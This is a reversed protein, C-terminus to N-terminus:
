VGDIKLVASGGVMRLFCDGTEELAGTGLSDAIVGSAEHGWRGMGVRVSTHGVTDALGIVGGSDTAGGSPGVEKRRNGGNGGRGPAPAEPREDVHPADDAEGGCGGLQEGDEHGPGGGM